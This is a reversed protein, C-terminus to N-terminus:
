PARGVAEGAGTAAPRLSEYAVRAVFVIVCVAVLALVLLRGPAGRRRRWVYLRRASQLMLASVLATAPAAYQVGFWTELLM